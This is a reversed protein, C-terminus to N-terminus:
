HILVYMSVEVGMDGNLGLTHLYKEIGDILRRDKRTPYSMVSVMAFGLGIFM